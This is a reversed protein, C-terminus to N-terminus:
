TSPKRNQGRSAAGQALRLDSAVPAGAARSVPGAPKTYYPIGPAAPPRCFPSAPRPSLPVYARCKRRLELGPTVILVDREPCHSPDHKSTLCCQGVEPSAPARRILRACGNNRNWRVAPAQNRNKGAPSVGVPLACGGSCTPVDIRARSDNQPIAPLAIERTLHDSSPMYRTGLSGEVAANEGTAHSIGFTMQAPASHAVKWIWRFFEVAPDLPPPIHLITWRVRKHGARRFIRHIADATDLQVIDYWNQDAAVKQTLPAMDVGAAQELACVGVLM